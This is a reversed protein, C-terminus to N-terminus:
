ARAWGGEPMTYAATHRVIVPHPACLAGFYSEWAGGADPLAGGTTTAVTGGSVTGSEARLNWSGDGAFFYLYPYTAVRGDTTLAHYRYRGDRVGAAVM